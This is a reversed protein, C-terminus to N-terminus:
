SGRPEGIGGSNYLTTASSIAYTQRRDPRRREPYAPGVARPLYRVIQVIQQGHQNARGVSHQLTRSDISFGAGVDRLDALSCAERGNQNAPKTAIDLIHRLWNRDVRGNARCVAQEVMMEPRVDGHYQLQRLRRATHQRLRRL